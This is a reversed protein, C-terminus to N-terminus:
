GGLWGGVLEAADRIVSILWVILGVGGLFVAFWPFRTRLRRGEHAVGLPRLGPSLRAGPDLRDDRWQAWQRAMDRFADVTALLRRWADGDTTIIGDPAYLRVTSGMLEVDLPRAHDLLSQMIDPPLLYLADTEYGTPCYLRFSRDFDGELRLRQSRVPDFELNSRGFARDNARSDLVIHPLEAPVHFTVVETSVVRRSRGSGTVSTYRGFEVSRDGTRLADFLSEDGGAEFAAGVAGGSPAWARYTWGNAEAFRRLRVRRRDQALWRAAIWVPVAIMSVSITLGLVAFAIDAADPDNSLMRVSLPAFLVLTLGLVAVFVLLVAAQPRRAGPPMAAAAERGAARADALSVSATLAATDLEATDSPPM